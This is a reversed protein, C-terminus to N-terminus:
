KCIEKSGVMLILLKIKVEYSVKREELDIKNGCLAIIIGSPAKELLEAVRISFNTKTFIM